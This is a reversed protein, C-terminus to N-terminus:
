PLATVARACRRSGAETQRCQAPGHAIAYSVIARPRSARTAPYLPFKLVLAHSTHLHMCAVLLAAATPLPFFFARTVSRGGDGAACRLSHCNATAAMHHRVARQQLVAQV